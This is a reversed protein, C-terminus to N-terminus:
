HFCRRTRTGGRKQINTGAIKKKNTDEKKVSSESRALNTFKEVKIERKITGTNWIHCKNCIHDTLDHKHYKRKQM